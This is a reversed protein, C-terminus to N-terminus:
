KIDMSFHGIATFLLMASMFIRVFLTFDYKHTTSKLAFASMGFVIILVSLAKM